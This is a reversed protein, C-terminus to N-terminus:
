IQTSQIIAYNIAGIIGYEPNSVLYVPISKLLEKTRGKEVFRKLFGPSQLIPAIAPAIGGMLYIGSWPLCRLAMNGTEAGYIESFIELTKRCTPDHGSVGDRSIEESSKNGVSPIAASNVSINKQLLFEYINKLGKGSLLDEWSVYEKQSQLYQYLEIETANGPSFDANGGEGAIAVRYNKGPIYIGMSEGLGTGAAIVAANAHHIKQGQNLTTIDRPDIFDIAYIMAALDNLLYIRKFNFHKRTRDADITWKRNSMLIANNQVPGAGAICLTSEQ